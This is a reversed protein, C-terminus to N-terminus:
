RLPGQVEPLGPVQFENCFCAYTAGTLAAGDQVGDDFGAATAADIGEGVQAFVRVRNGQAVLQCIASRVGSAEAKESV